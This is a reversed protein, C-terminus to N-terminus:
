CNDSRTKGSSPPCSKSRKTGFMSVFDRTRQVEKPSVRDRHIRREHFVTEIAWAFGGLDAKRDIISM